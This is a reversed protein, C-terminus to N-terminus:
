FNLDLGFELARPSGLGFVGTGVGVRDTIREAYTTSNVYGPTVTQGPGPADQLQGNMLTTGPLDFNAFNFLNYFGASPTLNVRERFFTGTWSLKMDLAKLPSMGVQGPPANAIPQITAGIAQLQSSTFLGNNILAQGAPTAQGAYM